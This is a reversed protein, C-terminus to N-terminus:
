PEASYDADPMKTIGAGSTVGSFLEPILVSPDDVVSAALSLGSSVGYQVPISETEIYAAPPTMCLERLLDVMLVTVPHGRWENFLARSELTSFRQQLETVASGLATRKARTLALRTAAPTRKSM